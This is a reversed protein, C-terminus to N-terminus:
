RKTGSFLFWGGYAFPNVGLLAFLKKPDKRSWRLQRFYEAPTRGTFIPRSVRTVSTIEILDGYRELVQEEERFLRVHSEDDFNPVSCVCWAGSPWLSIVDRDRAIHELVETCVIGDYRGAYSAPDLANGVFFRNTRGTKRIANAVAVPSFDFGRYEGQLRNLILGALDGNGCGVEIVSSVNKLWLARVAAQFLPFYPSREVPVNDDTRERHLEDYFASGLEQGM